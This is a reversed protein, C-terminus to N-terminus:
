NLPVKFAEKYEKEWNESNLLSRQFDEEDKILRDNHKLYSVVDKIGKNSCTGIYEGQKNTIEYISNNNYEVEKFKYVNKCTTLNM